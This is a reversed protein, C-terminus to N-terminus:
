STKLQPKDWLRFEFEIPLLRLTYQVDFEKVILVIPGVKLHFDEVKSKMSYDLLRGCDHKFM